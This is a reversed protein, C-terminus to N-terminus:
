NQIKTINSVGDVRKEIKPNGRYKLNIAGSLNLSLVKVVDIQIDGAGDAEISAYIAKSNKFDIKFTGDAKINLTKIITNQLTLTTAGSLYLDLKDLNFDKVEIDLAGYARIEKFNAISIVINLKTPSIAEKSSIFLTNHKIYFTLKQIINDDSEVEISNKSSNKIVINGSLDISIKEFKQSPKKILEKVIKGSGKLGFNININTAFTFITTLLIAFLVRM